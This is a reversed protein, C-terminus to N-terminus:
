DEEDSGYNHCLSALGMSSTAKKKSTIIRVCSTQIGCALRKTQPKKEDIAEMRRKKEDTAEEAIRRQKGFRISKILVADEEKAKEEDDRRSLAELMSDVNVSMRRSKMSKMEDLAAMVEIERKSVLSRKELSSMADGSEEAQKEDRHQDYTRTAGSEVVYDSNQLDTKLILEACCKTCKFYFRHTKLGLYTENIVEEVRSNFKTGRSIYNGCTNCRICFPLMYRVNKQQNKPKRIRPIKKPDFSPPYYKNLVKREGM